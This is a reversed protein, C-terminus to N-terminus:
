RIIIICNYIIIQGIRKLYSYPITNVRIVEKCGFIKFPFIFGGGRVYSAQDFALFWFCEMM